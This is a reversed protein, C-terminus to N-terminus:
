LTTNKCFRCLTISGSSNSIKLQELVSWYGTGYEFELQLNSNNLLQKVKAISGWGLHDDGTARTPRTIFIPIVSLFVSTVSHM